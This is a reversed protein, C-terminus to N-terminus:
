TSLLRRQLGGARLQTQQMIGGDGRKRAADTTIILSPSLLHVLRGNWQGVNAICWQIESKAESSLIQKKNFNNAQRNSPPYRGPNGQLRNPCSSSCPSLFEDEGSSKSSVQSNSIDNIFNSPMIQDPRLGKTRPSVSEDSNLGSNPGSFRNRSHARLNIEKYKNNLGLRTTVDNSEKGESPLREQDEWFLFRNQSKQLCRHAPGLRFPLVCYVYCKGDWFFLFTDRIIQHFAPSFFKETRKVEKICGIALLCKIEKNIALKQAFNM